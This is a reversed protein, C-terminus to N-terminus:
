YYTKKGFTMVAFVLGLALLVRLFPIGPIFMSAFGVIFTIWGWKAGEGRDQEAMRGIAQAAGIVIM